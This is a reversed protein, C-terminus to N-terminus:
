TEPTYGEIAEVGGEFFFKRMEIEIRERDKPNIPSLRNENIFMVQHQLWEQWFKQSVSQHIKQGLEGPYPVYALGEQNEGYKICNILRMLDKM